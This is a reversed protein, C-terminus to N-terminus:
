KLLTMRIVAQYDPTIMRVFYVGAALESADFAVEYSGPSFSRGEILAKVFRGTIDYVNLNVTNLDPVDFRIRTEPNFPNPYNQHLAYGEPLQDEIPDVQVGPMRKVVRLNDMYITGTLTGNNPDHTMQFSDIRYATGNLIEDGIWSGVQTPDSLDWELLRWGEWDLTWWHSVEHDPWSAGHAEDMAIRFKNNSGDGYVYCQLLYSNDFQVDRASGGSLYERLLFSSATPDWQYDLYAARQHTVRRSTGPLYVDRSIDFDCGAGVVGVTSGSYTPSEWGTIYRFTDILVVESYHEDFTTASINIDTLMANGLTDTITQPLTITAVANTTLQGYPKFSLISHDNLTTLLYAVERLEGNDSLVISSDNLTAPDINEDFVYNMVADIDMDSNPEGAMPYGTVVIPGQNDAGMTVFSLEYDDGPVGDGNVDLGVGNIDTVVSADLTITYTTDTLLNSGRQIDVVHDSQRWNLNMSSLEPTINLGAAFADRDMTKSFEFTMPVNIAVTDGAEISFTNIQPAFSPIAETVVVNSFGSENWYRNVRTAAFYYPTNHDQNGSYIQPITVAAHGFLIQVIESSDPDFDAQESRYLVLWHDTNDTTGPSLDIDYDLSNNETITLAPASPVEQSILGSGRIKTKKQFIGSGAPVFYQYDKWSGYSFFQFGDVWDVTRVANVIGTHNGWIDNQALIYSGPGVTYLRGANIGPQIYASWCDPCNGQLMGVFSSGTTWHYHMPTLQDIDGQNFWLAADQYVINYGNWGSWNYKGLAAVSLRVWPKQSQISDHLTAIFDNVSSRWYEPWSGYGAPVGASYPHDVDYLYRGSQPNQLALITEEDPMEDLTSIQEVPDTDQRSLLLDSYENWRVYDLHLGDIDYNNVVEMAVDVLYDRVEPMGPSLARYSPMPIDNQDRCVWEPHEASPTGPVTSAAQFTNFWAHLELGRAHAQEIAYQLPDYGPNSGGAYYGWPEFSSNYYATGSQRVQWLVANMHAAVHDDMIQRVRAQNAAVSSSGSIHEWTIVWTSRFEDNTAQASVQLSMFLVAGIALLYKQMHVGSKDNTSDLIRCLGLMQKENFVLYLFLPRM